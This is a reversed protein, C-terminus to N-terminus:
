QGTETAEQRRKREIHFVMRVLAERDEENIEVFEVGLIHHAEAADEPQGEVWGVRGIAYISRSNGYEAFLCLDVLTGVPCAVTSKLNLGGGSISLAEGRYQYLTGYNQRELHNLLHDVRAELRSLASVVFTRFPDNEEISVESDATRRKGFGVYLSSGDVAPLFSYHVRIGSITVWLYDRANM